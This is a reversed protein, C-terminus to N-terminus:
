NLCWDARDLEPQDVQETHKAKYAKISFLEM